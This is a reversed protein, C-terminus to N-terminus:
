ILRQKENWAFCFGCAGAIQKRGAWQDEGSGFGEGERREGKAEAEGMKRGSGLCYTPAEHDRTAYDAGKSSRPARDCGKSWPGRRARGGEGLLLAPSLLPSSKRKSDPVRTGQPMQRVLIIEANGAALPWPWGDDGHVM